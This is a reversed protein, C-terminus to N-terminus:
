LHTQFTGGRIRDHVIHQLSELMNCYQTNCLSTVINRFYVFSPPFSERSDLAPTALVTGASAVHTARPAHELFLEGLLDLIYLICLVFFSIYNFYDVRHM